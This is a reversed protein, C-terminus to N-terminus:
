ADQREHPASRQQERYARAERLVTLLEGAGCLAGPLRVTDTAPYSELVRIINHLDEDIM